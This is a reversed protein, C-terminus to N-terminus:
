FGIRIYGQCPRKFTESYCFLEVARAHLSETLEILEKEISDWNKEDQVMEATQNLVNRAYADLANFLSNFEAHVPKTAIVNVLDLMLGRLNTFAARLLKDAHGRGVLPKALETIENRLNLLQEDIELANPLEKVLNAKRFMKLSKKSSRDKLDSLLEKSEVISHTGVLVFWLTRSSACETWQAPVRESLPFGPEFLRMQEESIRGVAQAIELLSSRLFSPVRGLQVEAFKNSLEMVASAQKLLAASINKSELIETSMEKSCMAKYYQMLQESRDRRRKTQHRFDSLKGLQEHLPISDNVFKELKKTLSLVVSDPSRSKPPFIQRIVLSEKSTKSIKELTDAHPKLEKSLSTAEGKTTLDLEPEQIFAALVDEGAKARDAYTLLLKCKEKVTEYDIWRTRLVKLSAVINVVSQSSSKSLGQILLDWDQEISNMLEKINKRTSKIDCVICHLEFAFDPLCKARLSLDKVATLVSCIANNARDPHWSRKSEDSLRKAIEQPQNVRINYVTAIENRLSRGVAAFIRAASLTLFPAYARTNITQQAWNNMADPKDINEDFLAVVCIRGDGNAELPLLLSISVGVSTCNESTLQEYFGKQLDPQGAAAMRRRPQAEQQEPERRSWFRVAEEPYRSVDYDFNKVRPTCYVLCGYAQATFYHTCSTDSKNQQILVTCRPMSSLRDRYATRREMYHFVKKAELSLSNSLCLQPLEKDTKHYYRTRNIEWGVREQLRLREHQIFNNTDSHRLRRLIKDYAEESVDPRPDLCHLTAKLSVRIKAALRERESRSTRQEAM